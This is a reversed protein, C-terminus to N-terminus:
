GHYTAPAPCPLDASRGQSAPRSRLHAARAFSPPRVGRRQHRVHAEESKTLRGAPQLNVPLLRSPYGHGNEPPPRGRRHGSRVPGWETPTPAPRVCTHPIRQQPRGGGAPGEAGPRDRVRGDPAGGREPLRSG